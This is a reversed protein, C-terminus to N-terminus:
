TECTYHKQYYAVGGIDRVITINALLDLPTKEVNYLWKKCLM